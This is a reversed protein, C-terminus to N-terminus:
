RSNIKAKSIIAKITKRNAIARLGTEKSNINRERTIMQGATPREYINMLLAPSYGAALNLAEIERNRLAMSAHTSM